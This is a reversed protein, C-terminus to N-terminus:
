SEDITDVEIFLNVDVSNSFLLMQLYYRLLVNPCFLWFILWQKNTFINM